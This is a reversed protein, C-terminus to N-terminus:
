FYEFGQSPPLPPHPQIPDLQTLDGGFYATLDAPVNIALVLHLLALTSMVLGVFLSLLTLPLLLHESLYGRICVVYM